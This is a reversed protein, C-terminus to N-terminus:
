KTYLSGLLIRHKKGIAKVISGQLGMQKKRYLSGFLPEFWMKYDPARPFNIILFLARGCSVCGMLVSFISDM